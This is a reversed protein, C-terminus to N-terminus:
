SLIANIIYLFSIRNMELKKQNYYNNSDIDNKDPFLEALISNITSSKTIHPLIKNIKDIQNKYYKINLLINFIDCDDKYKIIQENLILNETETLQTLKNKLLNLNSSSRIRTIISMKSIKDQTDKIKDQTHIILTDINSFNSNVNTDAYTQITKLINTLLTVNYNIQVDELIRYYLILEDPITDNSEITNGNLIHIRKRTKIININSADLRIIYESMHPKLYPSDYICTSSSNNYLIYKSSNKPAYNTYRFSDGMCTNIDYLIKQYQVDNTGGRISYLKLYKKKYKIYKNKYINM